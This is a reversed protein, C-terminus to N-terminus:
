IASGSAPPPSYPAENRRGIWGRRRAARIAMWVLLALLLWPALTVVLIFMITLGYLFNDGAREAARSISPREDLNEVLDGSAYNFVVPTVALTQQDAERTEGASRISRRLETAEYQLQARDEASLREQALRQEIRGLEETMQAISRTAARIHSGVDQGTIESDILMGQARTVAEVGARGFRRAIAPDLQFALHGEIDRENVLRYRMGTIRCRNPGLQECTRAHQEQVEAVRQSPLQFSYRYNFAVGPAATPAVDPGAASRGGAPPPPPPPSAADGAAGPPAAESVDSTKLEESSRRREPAGCSSLLALMAAASLYVRM